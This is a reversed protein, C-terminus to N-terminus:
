SCAEKGGNKGGIMPLSGHGATLSALWGLPQSATGQVECVPTCTQGHEFPGSGETCPPDAANAIGSPVTCNALLHSGHPQGPVNVDFSTVTTPDPPYPDEYDTCYVAGEAYTNGVNVTRDSAIVFIRQPQNEKYIRICM